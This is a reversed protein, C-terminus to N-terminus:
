RAKEETTLCIGPYLERLRARGASMAIANNTNTFLYIMDYWTDWGYVSTRSWSLNSLQLQNQADRVWQLAGASGAVGTVRRGGDQFIRSPEITCYYKENIHTLISSKDIVNETFNSLFTFTFSCTEV